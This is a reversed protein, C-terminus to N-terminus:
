YNSEKRIVKKISQNTYIYEKGKYTLEKKIRKKDKNNIIILKIKNLYLKKNIEKEIQALAKNITSAKKNYYKYKYTIGQDSQYPIIEKLYVEYTKDKYDIGMSEIIALNNLEIYKPIKIIFLTLVLITIIIIKKM